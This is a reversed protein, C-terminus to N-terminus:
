RHVYGEVSLHRDRLIRLQRFLEGAGGLFGVADVPRSQAPLFSGLVDSQVLQRDGLFEARQVALGLTLLEPRGQGEGAGMLVNGTHVPNADLGARLAARALERSIGLVEPQRHVIGAAPGIDVLLSRPQRLVVLLGRHEGRRDLGM